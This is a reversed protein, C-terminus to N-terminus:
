FRTKAHFSEDVIDLRLGATIVIMFTTVVVERLNPSLTTGIWSKCHGTAKNGTKVTPM